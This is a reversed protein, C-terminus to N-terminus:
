RRGSSRSPSTGRGVRDAFRGGGGGRGPLTCNWFAIYAQRGAAARAWGYENLGWTPEHRVRAGCWVVDIHGPAALAVRCHSSECPGM